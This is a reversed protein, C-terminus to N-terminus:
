AAARQAARRRDSASAGHVTLAQVAVAAATAVAFAAGTGAPVILVAVVEVFAVFGAMGAVAGRLLSTAAGGGDQRHTFVALLSALVPLAALMGGVLPGVAAGAAALAIVLVATLVMRTLVDHALPLAPARVATNPPAPPLAVYALALSGVAGLLGAPPSDGGALLGAGLAALGAGLWGAGLSIPWRWRHAGHGYGVAFASLAVLGLLTGDATRAAVAPGHVLAAILLVPGVIAPFASVVGGVSPGWRRATLTAAAALAPAGLVEILTSLV